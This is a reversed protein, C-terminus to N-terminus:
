LQMSAPQDCYHPSGNKNVPVTNNIIVASPTAYIGLVAHVGGYFWYITEPTQSGNVFYSENEQFVSQAGSTITDTFQGGPSVTWSSNISTPKGVIITNQETISFPGNYPQGYQNIPQYTLVDVAAGLGQGAANVSRDYCDGILEFGALYPAPQTPKQPAPTAIPVGGQCFPNPEPTGDVGVCPSGCYGPGQSPDCYEFFGGDGDGFDGGGLGYGWTDLDLGMPDTGNAPDGNVYAYRNWSGPNGPKGSGTYPDPTMFRGYANSYYRNVGADIAGYIRVLAPLM